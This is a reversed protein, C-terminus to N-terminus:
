YAYRNPDYRGEGIKKYYHTPEILEQGYCGRAVNKFTATAGRTYNRHNPDPNFAFYMIWGYGDEKVQKASSESLSNGYNLQISAGTCNKRTQDGVPSAKGGYDAVMIDAYEAM